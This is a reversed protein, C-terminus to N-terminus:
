TIDQNLRNLNNNYLPSFNPPKPPTPPFDGPSDPTDFAPSSQQVAAANTTTTSPTSPPAACTPPPAHKAPETLMGSEILRLQLRRRCLSQLLIVAHGRTGPAPARERAWQQQRLLAATAAHWSDNFALIIQRAPPHSPDAMLFALNAKVSPRWLPLGM